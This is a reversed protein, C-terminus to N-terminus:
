KDHLQEAMSRILGFFPHAFPTVGGECVRKEPVEGYPQTTVKDNDSDVALKKLASM